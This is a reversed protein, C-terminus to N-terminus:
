HKKSNEHTYAWVIDGFREARNITICYLKVYMQTLYGHHQYNLISDVTEEFLAQILNQFSIVILFKSSLLEAFSKGGLQKEM